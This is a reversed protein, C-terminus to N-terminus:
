ALARADADIKQRLREALGEHATGLAEQITRAEQVYAERKVLTWHAPPPELNTIRDM